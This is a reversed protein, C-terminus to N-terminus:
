RRITGGVTDPITVKPLTKEEALPRMSPLEAEPLTPDDGDGMGVPEEEGLVEFRRSVPVVEGGVRIVPELWSPLGRAPLLAAETYHSGPNWLIWESIGADYTAQIQARVEPPGYDPEGLSFDQLWPRVRGAGEVRASREVAELMAARVVEYPHANPAEFGYSGAWYHSPYVMPLAVDVQDIFSEWLQGIGIDRRFATTVGFVDATVEVGEEKLPDRVYALFDRITQARTVGDSGPFVARGMYSEPADPFRVYDWQIEPFGMQAVERALDLHYQWVEPLFLNLWTNGKKDQWPGGASDQVALQPHVLPVLPDKAVVIRAIPYIGERELVHLVGPLDRIRIELNSGVELALPVHSSHSIYGSADKIDIVFTNVETRRALALLERRRGAAGATWANLYIGRIHEPREFRPDNAPSGESLGEVSSEGETSATRAVDPDLGPDAASRASELTGPEPPPVASLASDTELESGPPGGGSPGDRYTDGCGLLLLLGLILGPFARMLWVDRFPRKGAM